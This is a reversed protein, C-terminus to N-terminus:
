AGPGGAGFARAAAYVLFRYRRGGETHAEPASELVFPPPLEDFFVDCGFDGEIETAFVRRCAPHALAARFVTAGGIVFVREVSRDYPAGALVTLAEDFGDAWRHPAPGRRDTAPSRSLVINVRGPLPRFRDPLSEWTRRGMIVANVRDATDTATTIQRFRRLDGPLRWPLAGDRGIGRRADYAVVLDIPRM